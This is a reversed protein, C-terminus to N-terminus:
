FHMFLRLPAMAVPPQADSGLGLREERLQPM